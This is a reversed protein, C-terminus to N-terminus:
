KKLVAVGLLQRPPANYADREITGQGTLKIDASLYIEGSGKGKENLSLEVVLFPFRNDHRRRSDLNWSQSEGVLIIHRGKETQTSQVAHLTVQMGRGGTPRLIGKKMERLMTRFQKYGNRHFTEILQFVEESSTYSDVSIIIKEARQSGRSEDPFLRAEFEEQAWLGTCLFLCVAPAVWSSFRAKNQKEM